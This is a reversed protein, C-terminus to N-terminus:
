GHGEGHGKLPSSNNHQWTVFAMRLKMGRVIKHPTASHHNYLAGAYAKLATVSLSDRARFAAVPEDDGVKALMRCAGDVAENVEMLEALRALVEDKDM